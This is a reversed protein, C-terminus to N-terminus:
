NYNPIRAKKRLNELIGKIHSASKGEIQITKDIGSSAGIIGGILACGLGGIVGGFLTQVGLTGDARSTESHDGTAYGVGGGVM